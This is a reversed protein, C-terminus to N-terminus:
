ILVGRYYIAAVTGVTVGHENAVDALVEAREDVSDWGLGEEYELRALIANYMNMSVGAYSTFYMIEKVMGDFARAGAEM